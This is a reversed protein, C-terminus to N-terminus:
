YLLIRVCDAAFRCIHAVSLSPSKRCSVSRVTTVSPTGDSVPQPISLLSQSTMPLLPQVGHSGSRGVLRSDTTYTVSSGLVGRLVLPFPESEAGFLIALLARGVRVCDRVSLPQWEFAVIHLRNEKFPGACTLAHSSIGTRCSGAARVPRDESQGCIISPLRETRHVFLIGYTAVVVTRGDTTSKSGLM